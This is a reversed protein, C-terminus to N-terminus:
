GGIMPAVFEITEADPEYETIQRMAGPATVVALLGKDRQERFIREAEEVAGAKELDIVVASHGKVWTIITQKM